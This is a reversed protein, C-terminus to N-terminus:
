YGRRHDGVEVMMVGGGGGTQYFVQQVEGEESMGM